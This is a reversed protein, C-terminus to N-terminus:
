YDVTGRICKLRVRNRYANPIGHSHTVYIGSPEKKNGVRHSHEYSRSSGQVDNELFQRIKNGEARCMSESKYFVNNIPLPITELYGWNNLLEFVHDHNNNCYWYYGHRKCDNGYTVSRVVKEERSAVGVMHWRTASATPTIRSNLNEPHAKLEGSFSFLSALLFPALLLKKM